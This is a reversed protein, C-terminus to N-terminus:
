GCDPCIPEAEFTLDFGCRECRAPQDDHMVHSALRFSLAVRTVIAAFLVLVAVLAGPPIAFGRKAANLIVANSVVACVAGLGAALLYYRFRKEAAPQPSLLVALLFGLSELTSELIGFLIVAAFLGNPAAVGLGGLIFHAAVISVVVHGLWFCWFAFGMRPGARRAHLSAVTGRGRGGMQKCRVCCRRLSWTPRGCHRCRDADEREKVRQNSATRIMISLTQVQTRGHGRFM